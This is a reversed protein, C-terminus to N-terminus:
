AEAETEKEKEKKKAPAKEKVNEMIFDVAKTIALNRKISTAMEDNMFGKIQDVEMGYGKAMQELEAEYEEDTAEINEEKVIQELVLSSKIRTEAEPRVQEKLKDMTLGSFQLYQDMTLGSQAIRQAFEDVMNECQTDLMAEPIEMTSKDIIKQIAEDEKKGKAENEKKETLRKKVDEKYEALTEFESVDQAFEDDLEPMEKTKIEHIKVRFMAPKGALDAAQYQEPFTVNVEVEDGANKGILQDEFTDIFSHSGIELSHNEGKGGEFAVGDVFGEFDIVATDGSEIARDTVNVTRANNKREREVEADVEEDSVTTDIKTVQVGKYKGLTVEPRVAVEATFIFPKGSEIQVIDITPRSVVDAGSEEVAASYNQQILDNAADDYFIAAGYMKEIMNRPVKGKRFGPLSIKSRQKMYAAQIAKEVEEAAVEITLKAMNKELNEVQVSMFYNGGQEHMMDQM